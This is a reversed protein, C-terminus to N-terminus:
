HRKPCVKVQLCQFQYFMSRCKSGGISLSEICNDFSGLLIWDGPVWQPFDLIRPHAKKKREQNVRKPDGELGVAQRSEQAQRRSQKPSSGQSCTGM